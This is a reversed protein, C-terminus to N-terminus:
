TKRYLWVTHGSLTKYAEEPIAARTLAAEGALRRADHSIPGLAQSFRQKADDRGFMRVHDGQGFLRERDDDTLSESTNERYSGVSIPVSFIMIAGFRMTRKMQGLVAFPDCKLHELVHHHIILDFFNAPYRDLDSCLDCRSVISPYRGGEGASLDVPIYRTGLHKKLLHYSRGDPAVHLTRPCGALLAHQEIYLWALRHRELAGCDACQGFQRTRFVKLEAGNCVPCRFDAHPPTRGVEMGTIHDLGNM